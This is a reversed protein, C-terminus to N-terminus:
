RPCVGHTNTVAFTVMSLCGELVVASRASTCPPWTTQRWFGVPVSWVKSLRWVHQDSRLHGNLSMGRARCCLSGFHLSAMYDTEMFGQLSAWPSCLSCWQCSRSVRFTGPHVGRWFWACSPLFASLCVGYTNTVAFTVMSHCGELVVASRASTCFPRSLSPCNRISSWPKVAKPGMLVGYGTLLLCDLGTPFSRSGRHCSM